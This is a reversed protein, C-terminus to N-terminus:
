IYPSNKHLSVNKLINTPSTRRYVLADGDFNEHKHIRLKSNVTLIPSWWWLIMCIISRPRDEFIGCTESFVLVGSHFHWRFEMLMCATTAKHISIEALPSREVDDLIVNGLEGAECQPNYQRIIAGKKLYYRKALIQSCRWGVAWLCVWIYKVFTIM